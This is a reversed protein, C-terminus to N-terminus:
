HRTNDQGMLWREEVAIQQDRSEELMKRSWGGLGIAAEIEEATAGLDLLLRETIELEGALWANAREILLALAEARTM